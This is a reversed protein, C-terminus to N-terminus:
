NLAMDDAKGSLNTDPGVFLLRDDLLRDLDHVSSALMANRLRLEMDAIQLTAKELDQETM